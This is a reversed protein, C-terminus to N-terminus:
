VQRGWVAAIRSRAKRPTLRCSIEPSSLIRLPGVPLKIISSWQRQHALDSISAETALQEAKPLVPPAPRGQRADGVLLDIADDM